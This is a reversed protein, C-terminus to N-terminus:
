EKELSAWNGWDALPLGALFRGMARQLRLPM